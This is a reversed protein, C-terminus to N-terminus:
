YVGLFIAMEDAAKIFGDSYNAFRTQKARKGLEVFEVMEFLFDGPQRFTLAYKNKYMRALSQRSSDSYHALYNRIVCFEDIKNGADPPIKAFPNYKTALVRKAKGKLDRTDKFDFYGLGSILGRCVDKTLRKALKIGKYGAYKSPDRSLCEVFVNEVLVEWAVYIKLVFAEHIQKKESPLVETLIEKKKEPPIVVEKAEFVKLLLDTYQNIRIFFTDFQRKLSSKLM